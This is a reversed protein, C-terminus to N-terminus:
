PQRQKTRFPLSGYRVQVGPEPLHGLTTKLRRVVRYDGSAELARAMADLQEVSPNM